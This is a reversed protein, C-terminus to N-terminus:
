TLVQVFIFQSGLLTNFNSFQNYFSYPSEKPPIDTQYWFIQVGITGLFYFSIM